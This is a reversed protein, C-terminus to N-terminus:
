ILLMFLILSKVLNSFFSLRNKYDRCMGSLRKHIKLLYHGKVSANFTFIINVYNFACIITLNHCM